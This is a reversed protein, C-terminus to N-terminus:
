VLSWRPLKITTESQSSSGEFRLCLLWEHNYHNDIMKFQHTKGSDELGFISGNNKSQKFGGRKKELPFHGVNWHCWVHSSPKPPKPMMAPNTPKPTTTALSPFFSEV